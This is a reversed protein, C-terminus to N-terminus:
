IAELLKEKTYFLLEVELHVKNDTDYEFYKGKLYDPDQGEEDSCTSCGVDWQKNDYRDSFDNDAIDNVDNVEELSHVVWEDDTSIDLMIQCIVLAMVKPMSWLRVVENYKTRLDNIYDREFDYEMDLFDGEGVEIFENHRDLPEHLETEFSRVQPQYIM